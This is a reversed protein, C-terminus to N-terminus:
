RDRRTARTVAMAHVAVGVVPGIALSAVTRTGFSWPMLLILVSTVTAVLWGASYAAHLSLALVAAGTLVLLALMSAAFTLGALLRGDVQYQAGVLVSMLWPGILYALGAGGTGVALVALAFTRLAAIGRDKHELFHTIAVGQYASLPVLLPARTLSIALLLPAEARYAPVTSTLRLLVPFGVVLAASSAAAVLAHGTSLVFPRTRVDARSGAAARASPSIVIFLLWTAAAAASAVELGTASGISLAAVIVLLLRMSGESGVLAALTTWRGLGAFTGALTSHGAYALSALVVALVVSADFRGLVAPSWWASTAALLAGLAAGVALGIPLVRAGRAAGVHDGFSSRVSRTTENQLGTLVGFMVFLLSWFGLFDAYTPKDLIRAAALLVLYSSGAAVISAVGVSTVGRTTLTGPATM